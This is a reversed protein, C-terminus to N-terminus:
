DPWRGTRDFHERAADEADREREGSAGARFLWNVFYIAIGAGAIGAGGELDTETGMSMVVIGAIVVAAPLVYRVLVLPWAPRAAAPGHEAHQTAQRHRDDAM